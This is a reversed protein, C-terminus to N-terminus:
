YYQHINKEKLEITETNSLNITQILTLLSKELSEISLQDNNLKITILLEHIDSFVLKYEIIKNLFDLPIDDLTKNLILQSHINIIQKIENPDQSYQYEIIKDIRGRRNLLSPHITSLYNTTGITIISSKQTLKNSSNMYDLGSLLSLLSNSHKYNIEFGDLEELIIVCNSLKEALSYAWDINKGNNPHTIRIIPINLNFETNLCYIISNITTTKGTGPVGYLLLGRSINNKISNLIENKLSIEEFRHFSFITPNFPEISLGNSNLEIININFNISQIYENSILAIFGVDSIVDSNYQQHHFICCTTQIHNYRIIFPINESKWHCFLITTLHEKNFQKKTIIFNSNSNSNSVYTDLWDIMTKGITIYRENLDNNSKINLFNIIEVPLDCLDIENVYYKKTIEKVVSYTKYLGVTIPIALRLKSIISQYKKHDKKYDQLKSLVCETGSVIAGAGGLANFIELSLNSKKKQYNTNDTEIVSSVPPSVYKESM